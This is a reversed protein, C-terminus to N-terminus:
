HQLNATLFSTFSTTLRLILSLICYPSFSLFTFYVWTFVLLLHCFTATLKQYMVKSHTFSHTLSLSLSYFSFLSHSLSLSFSLSLLWLLVLLFHSLNCNPQLFRFRPLHRCTRLVPLNLSLSTSIILFPLLLPSLSVSPYQLSSSM